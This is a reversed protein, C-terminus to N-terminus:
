RLEKLRFDDVFLLILGALISISYSLIPDEPFLYADLLGWVGRWVMVVGIVVLTTHLLPYEKKMRSAWAVWRTRM